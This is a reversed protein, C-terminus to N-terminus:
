LRQLGRQSFLHFYNQAEFLRREGRGGAAARAGPGHLGTFPGSLGRCRAQRAYSPCVFAGGHGQLPDFREFNIKNTM